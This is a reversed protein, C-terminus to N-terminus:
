DLAASVRNEALRQEKELGDVLTALLEGRWEGPSARPGGAETTGPGAELGSGISAEVTALLEAIERHAEAAMSAARDMSFLSRGMAVGPAAGASSGASATGPARRRGEAAGLLELVEGPEMDLMRAMSAARQQGEPMAAGPDVGGAAIRELAEALLTVTATSRLTLRTVSRITDLLESARRRLAASDKGFARATKAERKASQDLQELAAKVDARLSDIERQASAVVAEKRALEGKVQAHGM